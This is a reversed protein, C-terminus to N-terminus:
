VLTQLHCRMQCLTYHCLWLDCDKLTCHLSTHNLRVQREAWAQNEAFKLVLLPEMPTILVCLCKSLLKKKIRTLSLALRGVMNHCVCSPDPWVCVYVASSLRCSSPLLCLKGNYTCTMQLKDTAEFYFRFPTCLSFIPITWILMFKCSIHKGVHFFNVCVRYFLSFMNINIDTVM